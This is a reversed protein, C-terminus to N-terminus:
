STGKAIVFGKRGTLKVNKRVDIWLKLWIGAQEEESMGQAAAAEKRPM